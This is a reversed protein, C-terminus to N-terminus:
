WVKMLEQLNLGARTKVITTPARAVITSRIIMRRHFTDTPMGSLTKKKSPLATPSFRALMSWAMGIDVMKAFIDGGPM